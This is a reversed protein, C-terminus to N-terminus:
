CDSFHSSNVQRYLQDYYDFCASIYLCLKLKITNWIEGSKHMEVM